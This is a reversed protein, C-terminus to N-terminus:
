GSRPRRPCAIDLFGGEFVLGKRPLSRAEGLWKEWHETLLAKERTASGKPATGDRRQLQLQIFEGRPDGQEILFDAYVHRRSVDGPADYVAQLLATGDAIVKRPTPKPAWDRLKSDIQSLLKADDEPLLPAGQPYKEAIRKKAKEVKKGRSLWGGRLRDGISRPDAIEVLTEAVMTWFTASNESRFPADACTNALWRALRPDRPHDAAVRRRLASDAAAKTILDEFLLELDEPKKQAALAEWREARERGPKGGLAGQQTRIARSTEDIADALEVAPLERWAALLHHLAKALDRTELASLAAALPKARSKKAAMSSVEARTEEKKAAELWLVYWRQNSYTLGTEFFSKAKKSKGLAKAPDAPVEVSRPATDLELELTVEDGGEVGAKGRVEASVPLMFRGGMSGISTRYTYGNITARVAPRKGGGLKEVVEDPVHIGTATKGATLLKAKM